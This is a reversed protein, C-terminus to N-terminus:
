GKHWHHHPDLPMGDSGTGRIQGSRDRRKAVTDHCTRCLAIWASEDWFDTGSNHGHSHDVVTAATLRGVEACYHCTPHESLFLVRAKRWRSGYGRAAASERPYRSM